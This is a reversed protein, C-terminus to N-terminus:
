SAPNSRRRLATFGLGVSWLREGEEFLYVHRAVDIRIGLREGAHIILGAGLHYGPIFGIGEGIAMVTSLGGKVLLNVGPGPANFAAGLDPALILAGASLGDPFLGVGVEGGLNWAHLDSFRFSVATIGQGDYYFRDLTGGLASVDTVHRGQAALCVPRTSVLTALILGFSFGSTM